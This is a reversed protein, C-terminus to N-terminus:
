VPPLPWHHFNASAVLHAPIKLCRPRRFLKARPLYHQQINTDLCILSKTTFRLSFPNHPASIASAISSIFKIANVSNDQKNYLVAVGSGPHVTLLFYTAEIKPYTGDVAISM